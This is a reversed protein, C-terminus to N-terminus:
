FKLRYDPAAAMTVAPDQNWINVVTLSDRVEAYAELKRLPADLFGLRTGRDRSLVDGWALYLFPHGGNGDGDDRRIRTDPQGYREILRKEIAARQDLDVAQALGITHLRAADGETFAGELCRWGPKPAHTGDFRFDCGGTVAQMVRGDEHYVPREGFSETAGNMAQEVTMGLRVGAIEHRGIVASQGTAAALPGGASGTAGGTAAASASANGEVLWATADGAAGRYVVTQERGAEGTIELRPLRACEFGLMARVGDVTRQLRDGSKFFGPDAARITIPVPQGCAAERDAVVLMDPHQVLLREQAAATGAVLLVAAAAITAHVPIRM